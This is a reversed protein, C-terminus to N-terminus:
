ANEDLWDNKIIEASSCPGSKFLDCYGKAYIEGALELFRKAAIDPNWLDRVTFYANKGLSTCLKPTDLLQTVKKYLSNLDGNKYVLGNQGNEIMFPVSGIAHSAVVACGSNMSENLVAGWGENQDSTFLFIQSQEMYKRVEEPSMVGLMHVCDNLDNDHIMQSIKSELEGNGILHMQFTYGKEKLQRAIIVPLEPHKWEILRAAWLISARHKLEILKGIDDYKKVEPFYGWKYTRGYFNSYKNVDLSTYASACLFYLQKRQFPSLHRKARIYHKISGLINEREKFYRESTKITIKGVDVRRKIYWDSCSGVILVDCELAIKDAYEKTEQSDYACIVFPLSHNIDEYGMQRRFQPCAELAIFKYDDGLSAYLKNAVPLQHHNMYNSIYVMKM